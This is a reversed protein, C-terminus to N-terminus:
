EKTLFTKITNIIDEQDKFSNMDEDLITDINDITM